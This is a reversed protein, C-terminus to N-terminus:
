NDTGLEEFEDLEKHLEIKTKYKKNDLVISLTKSAEAANIKYRKCLESIIETRKVKIRRELFTSENYCLGV